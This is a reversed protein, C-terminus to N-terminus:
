SLCCARRQQLPWRRHQSASGRACHTCQLHHPSSDCLLSAHPTPARISCALSRQCHRHSVSMTSPWAARQRRACRHYPRTCRAVNDTACLEHLSMSTISTSTILPRCRQVSAHPPPLVMALEEPADSFTSSPSHPLSAPLPQRHRDVVRRSALIALRHRRHRRGRRLHHPM